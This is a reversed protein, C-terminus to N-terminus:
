AQSAHASNAAAALERPDFGDFWEIVDHLNSYELTFCDARDVLNSLVEFGTLGLLTYNFSSRAFWMFTQGKSMPRANMAGKTKYTPFVIWRPLAPDGVHLVSETPPRMHGVAGKATDQCIPGFATQPDISRIVDISRNKLAIPRSLAAIMNTAPAVLTLEDTLLRWGRIVLAACLTSKGSGPPGPLITAYGDREVAAAHIVLYQNAHRSICWNFCWEFMPFAQELPLPAFPSESDLRFRVEPRVWPRLSRTRIFSIHFDAVGSNELIPFDEYLLRIGEAIHAVATQLHITFPGTEIYIGPDKIREILQTPSLHAIQV